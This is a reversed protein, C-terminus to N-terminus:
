SFPAIRAARICPSLEPVMPRAQRAIGVSGFAIVERLRVGRQALAPVGDRRLQELLQPVEPARQRRGFGAAVLRAREAIGELEAIGLRHGPREARQGRGLLARQGREVHEDPHAPVVLGGREGLAEALDIARDIEVGAGVLLELRRPEELGRAAIAVGAPHELLGEIEGGGVLARRDLEGEAPDEGATARIRLGGPEQLSARLDGASRACAWRWRTAM